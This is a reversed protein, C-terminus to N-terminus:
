RETDEADDKRVGAIQMDERVVYMFRDLDDYCVRKYETDSTSGSKKATYQLNKNLLECEEILDM